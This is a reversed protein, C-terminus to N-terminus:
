CHTLTALRSSRTGDTSIEVVFRVQDLRARLLIPDVVRLGATLLILRGGGLM